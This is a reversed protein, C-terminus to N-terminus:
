TLSRHKSKQWHQPYHADFLSELTRLNEARFTNTVRLLRSKIPSLINQEYICFM